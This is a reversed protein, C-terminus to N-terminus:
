QVAWVPGCTEESVSCRAVFAEAHGHARMDSVAEVFSSRAPGTWYGDKTVGELVLEHDSIPCVALYTNGEREEGVTDLPGSDPELATLNVDGPITVVTLVLSVLGGGAKGIANHLAIGIAHIFAHEELEELLEFNFDPAM